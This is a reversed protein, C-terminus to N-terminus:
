ALSQLESTHEESRCVKNGKVVNYRYEVANDSDATETTASWSQEGSPKMAITKKVPSLIEVELSEGPVTRYNINFNLKM